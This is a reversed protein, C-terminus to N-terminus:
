QSNKHNCYHNKLKLLFSPIKHNVQRSNSKWTPIQEM